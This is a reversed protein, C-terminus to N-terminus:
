DPGTQGDPLPGALEALGAIAEAAPAVGRGDLGALYETAHCAVRELLGGRDHVSSSFSSSGGSSM